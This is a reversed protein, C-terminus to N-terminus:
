NISLGPTRSRAPRTNTRAQQASTWASELYSLGDSLRGQYALAMGLGTCAQTMADPDGIVQAIRLAERALKEGPELELGQLYGWALGDYAVAKELSDEQDEMLDVASQYHHMAESYDLAVGSGSSYAAGLLRHLVAARGPNGSKGFMQIARLMHDVDHRTSDSGREGM